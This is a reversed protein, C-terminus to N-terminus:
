YREGQHIGWFHSRFVHARRSAKEEAYRFDSPKHGRQHDAYQDIPGPAECCRAIEHGGQAQCNKAQTKQNLACPFLTLETVEDSNIERIM